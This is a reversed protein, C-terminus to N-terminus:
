APTGAVTIAAQIQELLRSFDVPKPHYDTCGAAIAKDRDGAMAHATLAIIPVHSTRANSRLARVASYGDLVPLNVDMLILDPHEALAKDVGEQGDFALSVEYGKRKLRRSLFDWIEEHDEVLLLRAM